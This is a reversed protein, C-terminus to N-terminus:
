HALRVQSSNPGVGAPIPVDSSAYDANIVLNVGKL